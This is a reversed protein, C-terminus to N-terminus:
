YPNDGRAPNTAMRDPDILARLPRGSSWRIGGRVVTIANQGRGGGGHDAIGTVPDPVSLCFEMHDDNHGPTGYHMGWGPGADRWRSPSVIANNLRAQELVWAVAMGVRYDDLIYHDDAEVGALAYVARMSTGCNTRMSAVLPARERTENAWFLAELKERDHVLSVGNLARVIRAIHDGASEDDGRIHLEHVWDDLTM